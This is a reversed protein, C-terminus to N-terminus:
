ASTLLRFRLDKRNGETAEPQSVSHNYETVHESMAKGELESAWAVWNQLITLQIKQMPVSVGFDSLLLEQAYNKALTGTVSVWFIAGVIVLVVVRVSVAVLIQIVTDGVM